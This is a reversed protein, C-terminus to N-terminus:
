SPFRAKPRGAASGRGPLPRSELRARGPRRHSLTPDTRRRKTVEPPSRDRNRAGPARAPTAMTRPRHARIPVTAPRASRSPPALRASSLISSWSPRTNTRGNSRWSTRRISNSPTSTSGSAPAGATRRSRSAAPPLSASRSGTRAATSGASALFGRPRMKRTPGPWGKARGLWAAAAARSPSM